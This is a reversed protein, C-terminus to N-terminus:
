DISDTIIEKGELVEMIMDDNSFNFAQGKDNTCKREYGHIIFVFFRLKLVSKYSIELAGM